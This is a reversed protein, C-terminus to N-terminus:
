PLFNDEDFLRFNLFFDIEQVTDKFGYGHTFTHDLV